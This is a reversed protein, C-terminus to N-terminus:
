LGGRLAGLGYKGPERHQADTMRHPAAYQLRGCAAPIASANSRGLLGEHADVGTMSRKTM